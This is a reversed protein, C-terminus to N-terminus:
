LFLREYLHALLVVASALGRLLAAQWWPHWTEFYRIMSDAIRRQKWALTRQAFSRGVRDYAVISPVHRVTYRAQIAARCYDVDEYWIFYREDLGGLVRLVREPICLFAGRVSDVDQEQLLDLDAAEYEALARPFLRGLKSLILVQSWFTPFRHVSRIPVGDEQLLLATFLGRTPHEDAYAVTQALTDPRVRMDPNFLLVHRARSAAIGQNCAKSFGLNEDNRLLTVWPAEDSVMACSGDSSANDIVIVEATFRGQSEALSRLNERLLDCVNWNVIIIALDPIQGVAPCFGPVPLLPSSM